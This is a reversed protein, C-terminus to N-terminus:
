RRLTIGLLFGMALLAAGAVIHRSRQVAMTEGAQSGRRVLKAKQDFHFEQEADDPVILSVSKLPPLKPLLEKKLQAVIKKVLTQMQASRKEVAELVEAHTAVPAGEDGTMVVQNTILSL